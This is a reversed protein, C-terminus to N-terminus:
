MVTRRLRNLCQPTIIKIQTNCDCRCGIERNPIDALYHGTLDPYLIGHRKQLETAEFTCWQFPEHVYGIDAFHHVEEPELLLGAALSHVPADGWREYYFGGQEDLYRFLDRYAHSRYFRMDAIEFNSWFHCTNWLDGHQDRNRILSLLRRFPWPMTSAEQMATWLPSTPLRRASKYEALQRFLSPATKGQEWLAVTYGYRKGHKEMEVFPDYTIECTFSV